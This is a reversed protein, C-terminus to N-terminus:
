RSSRAATVATHLLDVVRPGWRSAIDDNLLIIHSDKVTTLGAWGPRKAVTAASQHCCITKSGAGIAYLMGAATPALSVIRAPWSKVHVPGGAAAITVPFAGPPMTTGAASSSASGSTTATGCAACVAAGAAIGLAAPFQREFARMIM